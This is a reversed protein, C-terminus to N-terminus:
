TSAASLPQGHLEKLWRAICDDRLLGLIFADGQPFWDRARGEIGFGLRQAQKLSVENDVAIFATVRRLACQVFAYVACARILHRTGGARDGVVLTVECNSKTFRSFIVVALIKDRQDLSTLTVATGADFHTGLRSNAWELYALRQAFDIM